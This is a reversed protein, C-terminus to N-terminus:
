AGLGKRKLIPGLLVRLNEGMILRKDAESIEANLVKSYETGLSRSPLHSGFIIRRAGLERVAMEIFGSTPDFGSTEVVINSSARVARIGQEWEGGAHACVFTVEPHRAALEALEQPTSVGPNEKGDTQLWTHQIIMAGLRAAHRVLPDFNPHNCALSGRSSPFYCGIMPGDKMWRDMADISGAVNNANLIMVGLLRKPWRALAKMIAQPNRHFAEEEEATSTGLGVGLLPCLREIAALDFLPLNREFVNELSFQGEVRYSLTLYSDWVRLSRLYAPEPLGFRSTATPSPSM